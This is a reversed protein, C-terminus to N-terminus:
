FLEPDRETVKGKKGINGMMGGWNNKQSFTLMGINGKKGVKGISRLKM